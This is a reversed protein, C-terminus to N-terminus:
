KFGKEDQDGGTKNGEREQSNKRTSKVPREKKAQKRFLQTRQHKASFVTRKKKM